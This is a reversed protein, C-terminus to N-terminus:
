EELAEADMRSGMSGHFRTLAGRSKVSKVVQCAGMM